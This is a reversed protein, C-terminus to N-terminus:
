PGVPPHLIRIDGGWRRMKLFIMTQIEGQGAPDPSPMREMAKGCGHDVIITDPNNGATPHACQFQQIVRQPILTMGRRYRIRQEVAIALYTTFRRGPVPIDEARIARLPSSLFTAGSDVFRAATTERAAPFPYRNM